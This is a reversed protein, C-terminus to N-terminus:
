ASLWKSPYSFHASLDVVFFCAFGVEAVQVVGTYVPFLTEDGLTRRNNHIEEDDGSKDLFARHNTLM